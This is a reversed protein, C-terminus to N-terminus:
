PAAINAILHTEWSQPPDSEKINPTPLSSEYFGPPSRPTQPSPNPCYSKRFHDFKHLGIAFEIARLNTNTRTKHVCFLPSHWLLRIRYFSEALLM